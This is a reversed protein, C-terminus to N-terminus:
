PKPRIRVMVMDKDTLSFRRNLPRSQLTTDVALLHANTLPVRIGAGSNTLSCVVNTAYAQTKREGIFGIVRVTHESPSASSAM